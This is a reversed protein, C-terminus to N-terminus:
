ENASRKEKLIREAQPMRLYTPVLDSALISKKDLFMKRALLAVSKATQYKVSEDALVADFNKWSKNYCLDAGDGIFIVKENYKSLGLFLDDILIARDKVLRELKGDKIKFIANYVQNCRADMVPCIIGEFNIANYAIAELTSVSICPKNLAFAMGKVSSIGIRIGTFSGPGTSVAFADITNIETNTVTLLDKIMPMLTESHTLGSNIYFECLVKENEIISASASKASSDIALIKM